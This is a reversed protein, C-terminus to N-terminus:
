KNLLKDIEESQEYLRNVVARGKSTQTALYALLIIYLVGAWEIIPQDTLALLCPATLGSVKINFLLKKIAKM